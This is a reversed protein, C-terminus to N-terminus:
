AARPNLVCDVRIRLSIASSVPVSSPSHADLNRANFPQDLGGGLQARRNKEARRNRPAINRPLWIYRSAKPQDTRRPNAHHNQPDRRSARPAQAPTRKIRWGSAPVRRPPPRCSADPTSDRPREGANGASTPDGGAPWLPTLKRHHTGTGTGAAHIRPPSRSRISTAVARRPPRHPQRHGPPHSGRRAAPQTCTPCCGNRRSRVERKLMQPDPATSM